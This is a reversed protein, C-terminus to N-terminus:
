AMSNDRVYTTISADDDGAAWVARLLDAPHIDHTSLFQRDGGCTFMTDPHLEGRLKARAKAIIRPLWVFGELESDKAPLTEPDLQAASTKGGQVVQLLDRRASAILIAAGPSPVSEDCFDEVFDFFERQAYGISGLFALDDASYYNAFESDGSRYREVCRDFLERFTTDWSFNTM